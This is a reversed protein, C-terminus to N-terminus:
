VFFFSRDLGTRFLHKPSLGCVLWSPRILSLLSRTNNDNLQQMEVLYLVSPIHHSRPKGIWDVEHLLFTVAYNIVPLSGMCVLLM